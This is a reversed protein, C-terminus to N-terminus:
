DDRNTEFRILIVIHQVLTCMTSLMHPNYCGQTDRFCFISYIFQCSITGDILIGDLIDHVTHLLYLWTYFYMLTHRKYTYL